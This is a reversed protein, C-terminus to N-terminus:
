RHNNFPAGKLNGATHHDSGHSLFSSALCQISGAQHIGVTNTGIESRHAGCIWFDEGRTIAGKAARCNNHCHLM